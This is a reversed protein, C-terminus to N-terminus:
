QTLLYTLLMRSLMLFFIGKKSPKFMCESGDSKHVVSGTMMSSHYTVKYKKQAIHLSVIGELHYVVM